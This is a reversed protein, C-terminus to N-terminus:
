CWITEKAAGFIERIEEVSLDGVDRGGGVNITRVDFFAEALKKSKEMGTIGAPDDDLAIILRTAGARMLLGLQGNSVLRGLIAVGNHNGAQELRLVDLPGETLIATGTERIYTKAKDINFLNGERDFGDSHSWKILAKGTVDRGTFGVIRGEIDRIPFVVRNYMKKYPTKGLGVQYREVLERTFGRTELYDSYELQSLAEEPYVVLAREQRKIKDVFQKNKKREIVEKLDVDTLNCFSKVFQVAEPFSMGKVGRVLGFIDKGFEEHCGRSFCQYLGLELHWSWADQRDGGHIPCPAYVYQYKESYKINLSDLIDTIRENAQEKIAILEAREM